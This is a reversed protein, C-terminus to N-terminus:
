TWVLKKGLLKFMRIALIFLVVRRICHFTSRGRLVADSPWHMHFIKCRSTFAIKLTTNRRLYYDYVPYGREKIKNYILYVYPNYKPTAPYAYIIFKDTPYPM